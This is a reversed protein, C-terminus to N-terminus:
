VKQPGQSNKSVLLKHQSSEGSLTYLSQANPNHLHGHYFIDVNEPTEFSYIEKKGDKEREKKKEESIEKRKEKKWGDKATM